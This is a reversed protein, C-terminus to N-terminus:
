AHVQSPACTPVEEQRLYIYGPVTYSNTPNMLSPGDPSFYSDSGWVDFLPRRTRVDPYLIHVYKYQAGNELLKQLEIKVEHQIGLLEFQPRIVAVEETTTLYQKPISSLFAHSM